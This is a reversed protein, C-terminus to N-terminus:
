EEEDLQTQVQNFHQFLTTEPDNKDSNKTNFLLQAEDAEKEVSQFDSLQQQLLHDALADQLQSRIPLFRSLCQVPLTPPRECRIIKRLLDCPQFPEAAPRLPTRHPQFDLANRIQLFFSLLRASGHKNLQPGRKITSQHINISSPPLRFSLGASSFWHCRRLQEFGKRTVECIM